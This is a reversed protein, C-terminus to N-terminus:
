ENAVKVTFVSPQIEITTFHKLNVNESTLQVLTTEYKGNNFLREVTILYDGHQIQLKGDIPTALNDVDKLKNLYDLRVLQEFTQGGQFVEVLDKAYDQASLGSKITGLRVTNKTSPKSEVPNSEVEVKKPEPEKKLLHLNNKGVQGTDENIYILNILVCKDYGQLTLWDIVGKSKIPNKPMYSSDLDVPNSITLREDGKEYIVKGPREIVTVGTLADIQKKIQANVYPLSKYYYNKFNYFCNILTGAPPPVVTTPPVAPTTSVETEDKITNM